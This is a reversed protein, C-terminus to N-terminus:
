KEAEHWYTLVYEDTYDFHISMPMEHQEVALTLVKKEWNIHLVTTLHQLDYYDRGLVKFATEKASWALHLALDIDSSIALLSLEEHRLFHSTVKQVRQGLREIDIGVPYASTIVAAYGQTHSVSIYPSAETSGKDDALFPRGEADYVIRQEEGYFLEKLARRVALVELLRRSGPKLNAVKEAYYEPHHLSAKLEEESETIKWVIYDM